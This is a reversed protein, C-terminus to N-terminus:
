RATAPLELTVEPPAEASSGLLARRGRVSQLILRGDVSAGVRFPKAAKGDVSILAIGAGGIGAVVGALVFRRSDAQLAADTEGAAVTGGGLARAVQTTDPATQAPM